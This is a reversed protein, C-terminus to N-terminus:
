KAPAEPPHCDGCMEATFDRHSEPLTSKSAVHHCYSCNKFIGDLAHPASDAPTRSLGAPSPEVDYKDANVPHCLLCEGPAYKLHSVPMGFDRAPEGHCLVCHDSGMAISHPVLVPESARHCSSCTGLGFNRHTTPITDQEVDHCENCAATQRSPPHPDNPASAAGVLPAISSATGAFLVVAGVFLVLIMTVVTSVIRHNM